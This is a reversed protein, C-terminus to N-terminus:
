YETLRLPHITPPPLFDFGVKSPIEWEGEDHSFFVMSEEQIFAWKSTVLFQSIAIVPNCSQLIAPSHAVNPHEAHGNHCCDSFSLGLIPFNTLPKSPTAVRKLRGIRRRWTRGAGWLFLGSLEEVLKVGVVVNSHFGLGNTSVGFMENALVGTRSCVMPLSSISEMSASCSGMNNGFPTLFM